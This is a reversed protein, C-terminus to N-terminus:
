KCDNIGLFAKSNNGESKSGFKKKHQTIYIANKCFSLM